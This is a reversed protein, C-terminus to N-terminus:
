RRPLLRNFPQLLPRNNNDNFNQPRGDVGQPAGARPQLGALSTWLGAKKSNGDALTVAAVWVFHQNRHKTIHTIRLQNGQAITIKLGPEDEQPSKEITVSGRDMVAQLNVGERKCRALLQECLAPNLESINVRLPDKQYCLKVSEVGGGAVNVTTSRTTKLAAGDPLKLQKPEVVTPGPPILARKKGDDGTVLNLVHGDSNTIEVPVNKLGPEDRDQQGNGDVDNFVVLEIEGPQQFGFRYEAPRGGATVRVVKSREITVLWNAFQSDSVLNPGIIYDGAPLKHIREYSSIVGARQPKGNKLPYILVKIKDLAPEGPDQKQNGNQDQFVLGRLEGQRVVALESTVAGGAPVTISRDSTFTAGAPWSEGIPEWTAEGASVSATFAGQPDTTITQEGGWSLNVRLTVAAIGPEDQDRDGDANRDDFVVGSLQGEQHFGFHLTQQEGATVRVTQEADATATAGPPLDVDDADVSVVFAGPPLEVQYRGDAESTATPEDAGSPPASDEDPLQPRITLRIGPLGDEDEEQTGNRNLDHFVVGTVVGPTLSPAASGAGPAAPDNPAPNPGAAEPDVANAAAEDATAEGAAADEGAATDEGDATEEGAPPQPAAAGSDGEGADSEQIGALGEADAPEGPGAAAPDNAHPTPTEAPPQTQPPQSPQNAPPALLAGDGLQQKLWAVQGIDLVALQPFFYPLALCAAALLLILLAALPARWRGRKRAPPVETNRTAAPQVAAPPAPTPAAQGAVAAIAAPPAGAEGGDAPGIASTASAKWKEKEEQERALMERLSAVLDDMEATHRSETVDGAAYELAVADAVADAPTSDGQEVTDARSEAEREQDQEWIGKLCTILRKVEDSFGTDSIELANRRSLPRLDPPLQDPAPMVAGKELLPILRIDRKIATAIELRVFDHPDDLRRNGQADKIDLWRQGLIALVVDVSGVAKEITDVFDLGPDISDVDMFVQDAGLEDCLQNKLARAIWKSDERRYSIFVRSM